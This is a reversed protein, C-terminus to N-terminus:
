LRVKLGLTGGRAGGAAISDGTLMDGVKLVPFAIESGIVEIMPNQGAPVTPRKDAAFIAVNEVRVDWIV